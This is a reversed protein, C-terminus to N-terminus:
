SRRKPSSRFGCDSHDCFGQVIIAVSDNLGFMSFNLLVYAFSLVPSHWILFGNAFSLVCGVLLDDRM